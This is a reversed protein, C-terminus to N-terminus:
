SKSIPRPPSQERESTRPPNSDSQSAPSEPKPSSDGGPALARLINAPGMVFAWQPKAITGTLKVELANSLPSLVAGVVTKLLNESEQFPFIKANFELERKDLAYVGHADIASNAGRLTVEPFVLRANEIKFNGRAETFRLATFRLLESLTGLLAVEGIEAGNLVASGDGRYSLPDNYRGEASAALKLRVDAKEQVFKGPATPAGGKKAAFFESLGAAVKGLSANELAFDFGLRRQEGAGWVRAHGSAQGGAFLATVDDLVIDDRDLTAIFSVDQLPFDHYKFEGATRAHIRLKESLGGPSNPGAFQGRVKLEPPQALRFPALAKAGAPGLLQGAVALDLTSDLGLDLTHWVHTAPDGVYTFRGHANGKGRVALFELGDFFAPRIFMRTRVRELETGRVVVKPVDAFVFVNSQRGDRWSGRVDVNAVPPTSPFELQQFVKTWWERFWESIDLPRLRGELLFRYRNTAFEHEYSGHAFNDGVRAFAEPSYLRKPDLEFEARGEEMIVGHSRIHPVQVRAALREFKWNAGFHVEARDTTLSDFDVYKLVDVARRKGVLDLVRPSISGAFHVVGKRSGLDVDARVTLPAGLINAIALTEVVPLTRPFIRGSLASIDVDDFVVRDATAAVERLDFQAGTMRLRGVILSELGYIRTAGTRLESASFEVHSPPADGFLLLRTTARVNTAEAAFPAKVRAARALALVQISAAGSESPTLELHLTPEEFQSVHEGLALAQRSLPPFHKALFESLQAPGTKGTGPTLALTGHASVAIGSVTASLQHITLARRKPEISADLNRIIEEPRGSPSLMAPVFATVETLRVERPEIRGVALLWPNLRVYASRATLIPEAFAPLFLKVNEILVRGAPDFSTRSFAVRVGSEELKAELRRLAFDPVSLENATIIYLQFFLIITLALWFSWLVFSFVVSFITRAIRSCLDAWAKM